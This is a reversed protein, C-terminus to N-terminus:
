GEAATRRPALNDSVASAAVRLFYALWCLIGALKAADELLHFPLFGPEIVDVVISIAFFVGALGLLVYETKLILSRFRLIYLLVLALYGAFTVTEPVGIRPLIKDHILFADDAALFMTLLGSTLLFAKQGPTVTRNPLILGAFLSVAATAAWLFIAAQSLFGIYFATNFIDAPDRTLDGFPVDFWYNIALVTGILVAWVALLLVLTTWISRFQAVLPRSTNLELPHLTDM